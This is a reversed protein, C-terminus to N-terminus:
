ARTIIGNPGRVLLTHETSHDLTISGIAFSGKPCGAETLIKTIGRPTVGFSKAASAVFM